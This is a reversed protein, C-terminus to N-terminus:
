GTKQRKCEDLLHHVARRIDEPSASTSMLADALSTSPIAEFYTMLIKIAPNARKLESALQTRQWEPVSFCLVAVDYIQQEIATTAAALSQAATVEYGASRIVQEREQLLETVYSVLLVTAM